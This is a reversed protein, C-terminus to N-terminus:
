LMPDGSQTKLPASSGTELFIESFAEYFFAAPTQFRQEEVFAQNASTVIVQCHPDEANQTPQEPYSTQPFDVVGYWLFFDVYSRTKNMSM